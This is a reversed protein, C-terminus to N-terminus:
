IKYKRQNKYTKQYRKTVEHAVLTDIHMKACISKRQKDFKQYEECDSHCGIYRKKCYKCPVIM